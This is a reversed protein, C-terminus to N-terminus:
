KTLEMISDPVQNVNAEVLLILIEKEL